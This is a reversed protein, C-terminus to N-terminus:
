LLGLQQHIFWYIYIGNKDEMNSTFDHLFIGMSVRNKWSIQNNMTLFGMQEEQKWAEYRWGPGCGTSAALVGLSGRGDGALWSLWSFSRPKPNKQHTLIWHQPIWHWLGVMKPMTKSWGMRQHHRPIHHTFMKQIANYSYDYRYHWPSIMSIYYTYWYYSKQIQFNALVM